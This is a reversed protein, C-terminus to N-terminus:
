EFRLESPVLDLNGAHVVGIRWLYQSVAAFKLLNERSKNQVRTIRYRLAPSDSNRCCCHIAIHDDFDTVSADADSGFVDRLDVVREIRRLADTAPCTQTQGNRVADNLFM